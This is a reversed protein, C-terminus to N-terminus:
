ELNLKKTMIYETIFWFLVAIAASILTAVFFGMHAALRPYNLMWSFVQMLADSMSVITVFLTLVTGIIQTIIYYVFYAAVAMLIRNKKATQGVTICAYYLLTSSLSAFLLILLLEVTYVIGHFVGCLQYLEGVNLFFDGLNQWFGRDAFAILAGIVVVVVCSFKCLTSVLLKVFIHQRNTVPLTFTLYGEASYMNKYFRVISIATALILLAICSIVLMLVSSYYIIETFINGQNLWDFVRVAFSFVLVLPLLLGFIRFYYIGEHKLLKKVM